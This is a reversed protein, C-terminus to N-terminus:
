CGFWGGGSGGGGKVVGGDGGGVMADAVAMFHVKVCGRTHVTKMYDVHKQRGAKNQSSVAQLHRPPSFNLSSFICDWPRVVGLWWGQELGWWRWFTSVAYVFM